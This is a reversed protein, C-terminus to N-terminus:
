RVRFAKVQISGGYQLHPNNQAITIAEEMSAAELIFYGTIRDTHQEPLINVQGGKNILVTENKLEQGLIKNGKEGINKRWRGYEEAMEAPDGPKFEKGELLVMMFGNQPDITIGSQWKEVLIGGLFLLVAAAVALLSKLVPRNQKSKRILGEELLQGSIRDVLGPPPFAEKKLRKFAEKEGPTLPNEKM